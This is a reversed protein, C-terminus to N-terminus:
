CRAARRTGRAGVLRLTRGLLETEAYPPDILVIDFPGDSAARGALYAVVDARVM